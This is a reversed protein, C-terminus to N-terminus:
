QNGEAKKKVASSLRQHEEFSLLKDIDCIFILGDELKVVGEVDGMGPVIKEATIMEREPREVVDSVADACLAVLQKSTHAIIFRDNLDLAREPLHLRKRINIVPIIMGKVNVVGLVIDPAEPLATIAAARVIREVFSLHLAYQQEDLTFVVLRKMRNIVGENINLGTM